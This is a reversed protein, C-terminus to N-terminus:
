LQLFKKVLFLFLGREPGGAGAGRALAVQVRHGVELGAAWPHDAAEAAVDDVGPPPLASEVLEVEGRLLRVVGHAALPWM